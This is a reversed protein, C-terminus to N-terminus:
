SKYLDFSQANPYKMYVYLSGLFRSKRKKYCLISEVKSLNVGVISEDVGDNM